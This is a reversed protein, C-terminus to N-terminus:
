DSGDSGQDRQQVANEHLADLGIGLRGAADEQGLRAHLLKILGLDQSNSGASKVLLAVAQGPTDGNTVADQDGLYTPKAEFAHKLISHRTDPPQCLSFLKAARRDLSALLLVLQEAIGLLHVSRLGRSSCTHSVRTRAPDQRLNVFSIDWKGEEFLCIYWSVQVM